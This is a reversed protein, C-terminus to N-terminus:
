ESGWDGDEFVHLMRTLGALFNALAICRRCERYPRICVHMHEQTKREWIARLQRARTLAYEVAALLEEPSPEEDGALELDLDETM